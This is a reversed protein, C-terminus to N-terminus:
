VPEKVAAMTMIMPPMMLTVMATMIVMINPVQSGIIMAFGGSVQRNCTVPDTPDTQRNSTKM